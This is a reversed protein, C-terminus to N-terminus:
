ATLLLKSQATLENLDKIEIAKNLLNEARQLNLGFDGKLYKRVTEPDIDLWQAIIAHNKRNLFPAINKLGKTLDTHLQTSRM